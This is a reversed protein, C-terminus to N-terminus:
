SANTGSTKLSENFKDINYTNLKPNYAAALAKELAAADKKMTGLNNKWSKVKGPDVDIIKGGGREIENSTIESLEKLSQRVRQLSANNVNFGIEFGLKAINKAM